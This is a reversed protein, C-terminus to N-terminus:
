SPEEKDTFNVAPPGTEEEPEVPPMDMTVSRARRVTGSDPEGPGATRAPIVVRAPAFAQIGPEPTIDGKEAAALQGRLRDMEQQVRGLEREVFDTTIALELPADPGLDRRQEALDRLKQQWDGAQQQLSDLSLALVSPVAAPEGAPRAAPITMNLAHNLQYLLNECRLYLDGLNSVRRRTNIAGWVVFAGIVLLMGGSSVCCGVSNVIVDDLIVSNVGLGILALIVGGLAIAALRPFVVKQSREVLVEETVARTVKKDFGSDKLLAKAELRLQNFQENYANNEIDAALPAITNQFALVSARLRQLRDLEQPTYGPQTSATTM